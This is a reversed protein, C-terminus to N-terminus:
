RRPPGVKRSSSPSCHRSHESGPTKAGPLALAFRTETGMSPVRKISQFVIDESNLM